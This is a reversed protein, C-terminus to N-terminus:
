GQASVASQPMRSYFHYTASGETKPASRQSRGPHTFINLQQGRMKPHQGSMEAHYGSINLQQGEIKAHQYLMMDHQGTLKTIYVAM